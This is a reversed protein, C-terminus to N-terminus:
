DGHVQERRLLARVQRLLEQFAASTDDRPRPLPV